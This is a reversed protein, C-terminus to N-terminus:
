KKRLLLLLMLWDTGWITLRYADSHRHVRSNSDVWNRKCLHQRYVSAHAQCKQHCLMKMFILHCLSSTAADHVMAPASGQVKMYIRRWRCWHAWRWFRNARALGFQQLQPDKRLGLGRLWISNIESVSTRKRHQFECLKCRWEPTTGRKIVCAMDHVSKNRVNIM